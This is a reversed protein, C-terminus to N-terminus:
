GAIASRTLAAVDIWEDVAFVATGDDSPVAFITQQPSCLAPLGPIQRGDCTYPHGWFSPADVSGRLAEIVAASTLESGSTALDDLLAWVNMAARFSVTGAGGAPEPAYRETAALYIEGEVDDVGPPGESNFFVAAQADDDVQTLIQEAACAGVLYLQAEVGLDRATNMIPVCATDAAGMVIADAAFEDARTLVPLLDASVVPFSILEIEAGLSQAVPAAIEQAAITFSEFEGYAIVIKRAGQEQVAHAVFAVLAGATGGSFTFVTDSRMETTTVPIGGIYPIGNTEFVPVSGNSTIDIGGLVAIAGEQVLQQACAQSVEVSFTATCTRLEIPRGDVGGLEANVFAVAAQAAARVEPFSGVPTNEQNIMGIVVPPLSPDAATGTAPVTGRFWNEGAFSSVVSGDSAVATTSATDDTEATSASPDPSATTVTGDDAVTTTAAEPAPESCAAALALALSAVVIRGGTSV